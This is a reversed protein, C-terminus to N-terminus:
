RLIASEQLCLPVAHHNCFLLTALMVPCGSVPMGLYTIRSDLLLSPLAPPPTRPKHDDYGVSAAAPAGGGAAAIAPSTSVLSEPVWIDGIPAAQAARALYTVQAQGQDAQQPTAGRTIISSHM